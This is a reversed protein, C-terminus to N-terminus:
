YITYFSNINSEIGTQNSTQDNNYFVIEQLSCKTPYLSSLYKGISNIFPSITAASQTSPIINGNKFMSMIGSSVKGTLLLQSTTTDTSSSIQYFNTKGQLVYNNTNWLGFIYGNGANNSLAYLRDGSSARKGVFSQYTSANSNISSNLVFEDDVGDLKISPKSNILLVAGASVIQPQYGATTQAANNGNGSQDYWVSVFGNGAGVFSLLSATDLNGNADFGINQSTNDSSRRVTIANGSYATRLKRLSYAATAGTYTDLLLPSSSTSSGVVTASRWGVQGNILLGM